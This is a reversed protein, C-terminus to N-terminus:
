YTASATPPKRAIMMMLMYGVIPTGCPVIGCTITSNSDCVDLGMAIERPWHRAPDTSADLSKRASDAAHHQQRPTDTPKPKACSSFLCLPFPPCNGASAIHPRKKRAEGNSHGTQRARSSRLLQAYREKAGARDTVDTQWGKEVRTRAWTHVGQVLRSSCPRGYV